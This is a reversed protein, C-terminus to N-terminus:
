SFRSNQAPFYSAYGTIVRYVTPTLLFGNDEDFVYPTQEFAYGAVALAEEAEKADDPSDFWAMAEFYRRESRTPTTKTPPREALGAHYSEAQAENPNMTDLHM